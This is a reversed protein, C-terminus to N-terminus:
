KGGGELVPGLKRELEKVKDSRESLMESASRMMGYAEDLEDRVMRYLAEEPTDGFHERRGGGDHYIRRDTDSTYYGVYWQAMWVLKRAKHEGREIRVLAFPRDPYLEQLQALTIKGTM